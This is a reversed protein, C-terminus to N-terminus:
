PRVERGEGAAGPEATPPRRHRQARLFALEIVVGIGVAAIILIWSEIPLGAIM